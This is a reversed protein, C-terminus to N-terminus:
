ILERYESPTVGFIKKFTKSFYNVDKYNLENAIEYVKYTSTELLRRAEHMKGRIVYEIFSEGVEQKFIRSLYNSSVYLNDAVNSLSLEGYLNKDIYSKAKNVYFSNSDKQRSKVEELVREFFDKLYDTIKEITKLKRFVGYLDTENHFINEINIDLSIIVDNLSNSLQLLDKSFNRINNKLSDELALAIDSSITSLVESNMTKLAHKLENMRKSFLEKVPNREYKKNASRYISDSDIAQNLGMLAKYELADVAEKYSYVISTIEHYVSGIGITVPVSLLNNIGNIIGQCIEKVHSLDIKDTCILIGINERLNFSYCKYLGAIANECKEMAAYKILNKDYESKNEPIHLELIIVAYQKANLDVGLFESKEYIKDLHINKGRIIEYFLHERIVPLSEKLRENLEKDKKLKDLKRDIDERIQGLKQKLQEEDIPKLLYCFASLEIARQAYEFEDYGSILIVYVNPYKHRVIDLIELGDMGDLLIDLIIIDPLFQEICDLAEASSGAVASVEMGYREWDIAKKIGERITIEDDVIIVKIM